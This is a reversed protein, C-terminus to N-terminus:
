WLKGLRWLSVPVSGRSERGRTSQSLPVMESDTPAGDGGRCAPQSLPPMEGLTSTCFQEMLVTVSLIVTSVTMLPCKSGVGTSPSFYLRRVCCVTVRRAPATVSGQATVAVTRLVGKFHDWSCESNTRASESLAYTLSWYSAGTHRAAHQLICATVRFLRTSPISLRWHLLMACTLHSVQSQPVEHDAGWYLTM